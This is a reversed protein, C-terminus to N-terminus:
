ELIIFIYIFLSNDSIEFYYKIRFAMAGLLLTTSYILVLILIIFIKYLLHHTKFIPLFQFYQVIM